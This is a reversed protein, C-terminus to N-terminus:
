ASLEALAPAGLKALIAPVESAPRPRSFYYGQVSTCGEDRLKDLQERTEVGEAITMMDLSEGLGLVARVISLSEKSTTLDRVFSQDIKIKNFPFSRLYSLSSYGTGFDDLAVSIGMSGLQNLIRLTTKNAGLFVSETVELEVREPRLGSAQLADRLSAVIDGRKFQVPSLNVAVSIASPWNVAELCATRLAWDGIAVIMGTEEALPIFEAPSVFGREPHHWRLLAEFGTVMNTLLSVQPQYYLELENRALAGELDRELLRRKHIRADMEPEFFSATSRREAKATYLAINAARLLAEYHAGDGPAVSVGISVGSMIQEGDIDFPVSFAAIIRQSLIEANDPQQVGLQIIAFEDGGLRAVTDGERVCARLRGAVAVLLADGVPYGLTDNVQKFNHLDLCVVAFQTGRGVLAIAQEMREKFLVRNPLKTLADHHAMFVVNAEAEYRETIDEHTSVWGGDPMPQYCIALVRGNKLEAVFAKRKGEAIVLEQRALYAEVPIEPTTGAAYRQQIIEQLSAGSRIADPALGYIEAFRRNWLRLRRDRDFFCVGQIINNLVAEFNQRGMELAKAAEVEATINVGTGRYGRFEGARDFVPDGNISFYHVSGDEQTREWRFDRFPRRASLDAKHAAWREAPMAPDGMEWRTKGAMSPIRTNPKFRFHEDQEWFWDSSMEAFSRLIDQGEQLRMASESLQRFQRGLALFLVAFAAAAVLAFSAIYASETRWAAFVAGRDMLIDIVLPYDPLPHVTVLSPIGTSITVDAFSGGGQAVTRYWPSALPLKFGLALEPGPYRTLMSGDRRLLAISQGSETAAARYFDNLYDSRVNGVVVGLFTGDSATLRRAFHLNVKETRMSVWITDIFLGADAHAKLFQFYDRGSMDSRPLPGPQSWNVRQGNADLLFIADVQPVAAAQEALRAQVDDSQFRDRFAAPTAVGSEIVRAEVQRLMMDVVQVFRSTHEVLVIGMGNMAHLRGEWAVRRNHWIM